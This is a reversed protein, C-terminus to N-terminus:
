NYCVEGSIQICQMIDETKKTETEFTRFHTGPMFNLKKKMYNFHRRKLIENKKQRQVM